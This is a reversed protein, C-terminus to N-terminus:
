LFIGKRGHAHVFPCKSWVFVHACLHLRAEQQQVPICGTTLQCGASHDRTWVATCPAGYLESSGDECEQKTKLPNSERKVEWVNCKDLCCIYRSCTSLKCFDLSVFFGTLGLQKEKCSAPLYLCHAFTDVRSSHLQVFAWFNECETAKESQLSFTLGHKRGWLVQKEVLSFHAELEAHLSLRPM